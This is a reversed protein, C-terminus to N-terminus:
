LDWTGTAAATGSSGAAADNIDWYLTQAKASSGFSGAAMAFAVGAIPYAARELISRNQSSRRRSSKSSGTTKSVVRRGGGHLCKPVCGVTLDYVALRFEGNM